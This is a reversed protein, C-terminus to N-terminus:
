RALISKLPEQESVIQAIRFADEVTIVELGANPHLAVYESATEPSVFFHVYHCATARPNEVNVGRSRNSMVATAPEVFEVGKPTVTLRVKEGNIPDPSKIIATHGFVAPFLIADGSCWVYFRRGDLEYRYPTPILTLGMGVFNGEEDFEAGMARLGKLIASAEDRSIGLGSAVRELSLPGSEELLFGMLQFTSRLLVPDVARFLDATAKASEQLNPNFM